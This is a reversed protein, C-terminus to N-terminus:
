TDFAGMHTIKWFEPVSRLVNFIITYEHNALPKYLTHFIYNISVSTSFFNMLNETYLIDNILSLVVISMIIHCRHLCRPFNLM